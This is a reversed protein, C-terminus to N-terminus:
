RKGQASPHPPSLASAGADATGSPAPPKQQGHGRGSIAQRAAILARALDPRLELARGYERLAAQDLGHRTMLLGLNTRAVAHDPQVALARQLLSLGEADRGVGLELVALNTLADAHRPDIAVARELHARAEAQRGLGSLVTGLQFFAVADNPQRRTTEELAAAAQRLQAEGPLPAGAQAARPPASSPAIRYAQDWHFSAQQHRGAVELSEALHSEILWSPEAHRRTHTWLSVSGQWIASQARSALLLVLLLAPVAAWTVARRSFRPWTSVVRALGGALLAALPLSILYSYRDAALQGSIVLLGSNPLLLLVYALGASTLWPWRPRWRVLFMLGSATALCALLSAPQLLGVGGPAHYYAHLPWPFFTKALYFWPAQAAVALRQEWGVAQLSVVGGSAGRAWIAALVTALAVGLLPLKELWAKVSAGASARGAARGDLLLLVLPLTVAVSKFLVAAVYFGLTALRARRRQSTSAGPDDARLHALIALMFFLVSPLYPQCSAWAVVEVRLPHVAFLASALWAGGRRCHAPLGPQARELLAELLRWLVVANAAHLLVSVLHILAPSGGSLRWEIGLLTWALPQYVGLLSSTWAWLLGSVGFDRLAPNHLFNAPDDWSTFGHTVAGGFAALVLLVLGAVPVWSGLLPSSMSATAVPAGPPGPRALPQEQQRKM